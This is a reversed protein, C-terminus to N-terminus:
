TNSELRWWENENERSYYRRASGRLSGGSVLVYCFLLASWPAPLGGGTVLVCRLAGCVASGEEEADEEVAQWEEASDLPPPSDDGSSATRVRDWWHRWGPPKGESSTESPLGSIYSM